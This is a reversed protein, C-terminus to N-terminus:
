TRYHQLGQKQSSISPILAPNLTSKHQLLPALLPQVKKACRERLGHGDISVLFLLNCHGVWGGVWREATALSAAQVQAEYEAM